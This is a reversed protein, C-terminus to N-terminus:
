ARLSKVSREVAESFTRINEIREFRGHEVLAKRALRIERRLASNLLRAQHLTLMFKLLKMELRDLEQRDRASLPPIKRAM